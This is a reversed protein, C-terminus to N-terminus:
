NEKLYNGNDVRDLRMGSIMSRSNSTLDSYGRFSKIEYHPVIFLKKVATSILESMNYKEAFLLLALIKEIEIDRDFSICSMFNTAKVKKCLVNEIELLVADM